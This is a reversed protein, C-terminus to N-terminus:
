CNKLLLPYADRAAAVPLIVAVASQGDASAVQLATHAGLRRGLRQLAKLTVQLGALLRAWGAAVVALAEGLPVLLLLVPLLQAGTGLLSVADM